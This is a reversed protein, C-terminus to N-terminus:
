ARLSCGFQKSRTSNRRASPRRFLQASRWGEIRQLWIGLTLRVLGLPEPGLKSQVKLQLDNLKAHKMVVPGYCYEQLVRTVHTSAPKDMQLYVIKDSVCM